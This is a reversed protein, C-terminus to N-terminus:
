PRGRWLAYEVPTQPNHNYVQLVDVGDQAVWLTGRQNPRRGSDAESQLYERDRVPGYV